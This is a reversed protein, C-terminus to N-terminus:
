KLNKIEKSLTITIIILMIPWTQARLYFSKVKTVSRLTSMKPKAIYM